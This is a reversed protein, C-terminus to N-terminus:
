VIVPTRNDGTWPMVFPGVAILNRPTTADEPFTTGNPIASPKWWLDQFTAHYGEHGATECAVGVPFLTWAGSFANIRDGYGVRTPLFAASVYGPATLGLTMAASGRGRFPGTPSSVTAHNLVDAASGGSDLWLAATPNAWGDIAAGLKDVIALMSVFGGRWVVVRTCQGDDSQWGQIKYNADAIWSSNDVMFTLQDTATPRNITTGGTFGAVPSYHVGLGPSTAAFNFLLSAGAAVNPQKLEIWSHATGEAAQVLDATTAWRDVGDRGAASGKSSAPVQWPNSAFGVFINKLALLLAKETLAASGQANVATVVPIQWTKTITPPILPM